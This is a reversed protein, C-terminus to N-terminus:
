HRPNDRVKLIAQIIATTVDLNGQLAMLEVLINRDAVVYKSPLKNLAIATVDLKCRECKCCNFRAFASDLREAVLREMVNVMVLPKQGPWLGSHNQASWNDQASGPQVPTSAAAQETEEAAAEPEAAAKDSKGTTPMIKNYMSEKVIEKKTRAM